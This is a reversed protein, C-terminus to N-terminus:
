KGASESHEERMGPKIASGLGQFPPLNRANKWATDAETATTDKM